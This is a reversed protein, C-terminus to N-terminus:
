QLQTQLRQLIGQPDADKELFVSVMNEGIIACLLKVDACEILTNEMTGMHYMAELETYADFTESALMAYEVLMLNDEVDFVVTSQDKIIYGTVGHIKRIDALTEQLKPTQPAEEKAASEKPASDLIVAAVEAITEERTRKQKSMLM